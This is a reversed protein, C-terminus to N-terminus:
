WTIGPIMNYLRRGLLEFTDPEKMREVQLEEDHKLKHHESHRFFRILIAVKLNMNLPQFSLRLETPTLHPTLITESLSGERSEAALTQSRSLDHLAGSFSM